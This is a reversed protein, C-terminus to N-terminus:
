GGKKEWNCCVLYLINVELGKDKFIGLTILIVGNETHLGAGRAAM